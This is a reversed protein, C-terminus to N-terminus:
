PQEMGTSWARGIEVMANGQSATSGLFIVEGSGLTLIFSFALLVFSRRRAFSSVNTSRRLPLSQIYACIGTQVVSTM